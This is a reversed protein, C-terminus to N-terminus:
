GIEKVFIGDSSLEDLATQKHIDGTTAVELLDFGLDPHLAALKARVSETQIIALKSARAGIVIRKKSKM